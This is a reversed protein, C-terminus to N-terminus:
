WGGGDLVLTAIEKAGSALRRLGEGHHIANPLGLWPEVCYFDSDAAETWTTVAYWPVSGPHALEFVLRRGTRTNHLTVKSDRPGIQFRDILTADDLRLVDQNAEERIIAGDASQRGWAACPLHLTWDAREQHPLAFYFHHGAYYPLPQNGTNTTELRVELRSGPLLNVVVDFQFAFPYFVRTEESDVLRMRLSNEPGGEVTSFKADRTFGHQPMPRVTGGADRWLEKKGDVFHRAIFPFLIPNGGRVKLIKSWDADDPWTIIERGEREWRLIRVGHESSVLVKNEGDTIQTAPQNQFLLTTKM